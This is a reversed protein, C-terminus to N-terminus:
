PSDSLAQRRPQSAGMRQSRARWWRFLGYAAVGAVVGAGAAAAAGLGGLWGAIGGLLSGFVAPGLCCLVVLPAAVAAAILGAAPKESM